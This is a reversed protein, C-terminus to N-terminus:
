KGKREGKNELARNMTLVVDTLHATEVYDAYLLNAACGFRNPCKLEKMDDALKRNPLESYARVNTAPTLTWCVMFLDCALDPRRQCKGDYRAFKDFQNAKMTQYDTVDSYRDYVRLDGREADAADWDRYVWIGPTRNALPYDEDCAVLVICKEGLMERLPIEALRKGKPLSRYLWPDLRATIEKVMQRYVGVSFGQYHSFKLAILERRSGHCFRRVDDLVDALKPGLVPGHHMYLTGGSSQPRLDFWRVGCMLQQYITLDQTRGLSKVWGPEYMAADHSAPLVWRKLPQKGWTDLHDQMWHSNDAAKAAAPVATGTPDAGCGQAAALLGIACALIFARSLNDGFRM